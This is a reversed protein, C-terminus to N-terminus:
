LASPETDIMTGFGYKVIRWSVRIVQDSSQYVGTLLLASAVWDESHSTQGTSDHYAQGSDNGEELREMRISRRDREQDHEYERQRYRSDSGGAPYYSRLHSTTEGYGTSQPEPRGLGYNFNRGHTSSRTREESEISRSEAVWEAARDMSRELNRDQRPGGQSEQLGKWSREPCENDVRIEPATVWDTAAFRRSKPMTMLLDDWKIRRQRETETLWGQAKEHVLTASMTTVIGLLVMRLAEPDCMQIWIAREKLDETSKEAGSTKHGYEGDTGIFPIPSDSFGVMLGATKAVKNIEELTMKQQDECDRYSIEDVLFTKLGASNYLLYRALNRHMTMIFTISWPPTPPEPQLQPQPQAPLKRKKLDYDTKWDQRPRVPRNVYQHHNNIDCLSNCIHQDGYCTQVTRWARRTTENSHDGDSASDSSSIHFSPTIPGLSSTSRSSHSGSKAVGSTRQIYRRNQSRKEKHSRPCGVGPASLEDETDPYEEKLPSYNKASVTSNSGNCRSGTATTNITLSQIQSTVNHTSEADMTLPTPSPTHIPLSPRAKTSATNAKQMPMRQNLDSPMTLDMELDLMRDMVTDVVDLPHGYVEYRFDAQSLMVPCDGGDMIQFIDRVRSLDNPGMFFRLLVNHDLSQASMTSSMM